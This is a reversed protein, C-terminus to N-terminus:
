FFNGFYVKVKGSAPVFDPLIYLGEDIEMFDRDCAKFFLDKVHELFINTSRSELRM